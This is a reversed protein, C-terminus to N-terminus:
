HKVLEPKPLVEDHPISHFGLAKLLENDLLMTALEYPTKENLSAKAISNIHNAM